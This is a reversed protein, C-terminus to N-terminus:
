PSASGSPTAPPTAGPSELTVAAVPYGTILWTGSMPEFLFRGTVLLNVAGSNALEGTGRISAAAQASTVKGRDDILYRITLSSSSITLSRLSSGSSGITFASRDAQARSRIAPAFAEWIAAPPGTRWDAENVVGQDYLRSLADGIRQTEGSLDPVATRQTVRFTEVKPSAFAFSSGSGGTSGGGNGGSSPGASSGGEGGGILVAAAVIAVV